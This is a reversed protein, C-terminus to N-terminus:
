QHPRNGLKLKVKIIKGNRYIEMNVVEGPRKKSVEAVLKNTSAINKGDISLIIDGNVWVKKNNLTKAKAGQLGAKDAPSDKIVKIVMVGRSTTSNLNMYNAADTDVPAMSIGIWPHQYEGKKIIADAVKKVKNSPIAFGVNDGKKARNVGIVKGLLNLLPGGSNGPNLPADTQIVNPISFGRQTPLSRGTASVIGHTITRSLGFPNGIAIVHEGPDVRSSNALPLPTPTFNGTASPFNKVELVAIDSYVDTGVVSAERRIGNSFVVEVSIANEVVHQNTIIHGKNDYVFGSGQASTVFGHHEATVKISVVSDSVHSYLKEYLSLFNGSDNIKLNITKNIRTVKTPGSSQPGSFSVCGIGGILLGMIIFVVALKISNSGDGNKGYDRRIKEM